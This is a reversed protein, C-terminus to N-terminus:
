PTADRQSRTTLRRAQAYSLMSSCQFTYANRFLRDTVRADWRALWESRLLNTSILTFGRRRHRRELILRLNETPLGSRFRDVESGVDDIILFDSQEADTWTGPRDGLPSEAITSWECWHANPARDPGWHGQSWSSVGCARWFRFASRALMTKGCGPSSALLLIKPHNVRNVLAGTAWGGAVRGMRTVEPDYPEWNPAWRSLWLDAKRRRDEPGPLSHSKPPSGTPAGSGIMNQLTPRLLRETVEALIPTDM